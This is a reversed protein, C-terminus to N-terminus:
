QESFLSMMGGYEWRADVGCADTGEKNQEMGRAHGM